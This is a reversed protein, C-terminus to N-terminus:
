VEETRLSQALEPPHDRGDHVDQWIRLLPTSADGADKLFREFGRVFAEINRDSPDEEEILGVWGLSPRSGSGPRARLWEAFRGLLEDEGTAGVDLRAQLYGALYVDLARVTTAGLYM